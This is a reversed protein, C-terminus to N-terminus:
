APDEGLEARAAEVEDATAVRSHWESVGAAFSLGRGKVTEALIV